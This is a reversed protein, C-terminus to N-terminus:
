TVWRKGPGSPRGDRPTGCSHSVLPLFVPQVPLDNWYGDFTSSFVLVRGDGVRREALAVSGSVPADVVGADRARIASEHRRLVAPPVTSSDVLVSGPRVGAILGDPGDYVADVAPGDALMSITVDSAAAVEAPTMVSRCDLQAALVDCLSQTRNWLVLEHGAARVARAIASGM